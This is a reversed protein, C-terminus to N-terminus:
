AHDIGVGEGDVGGLVVVGGVVVLRHAMQVIEAAAQHQRQRELGVQAVLRRALVDALVQVGLRVDVDLGAHPDVVHDAVERRVSIAAPLEHHRQLRAPPSGGGAGQPVGGGGGGGG